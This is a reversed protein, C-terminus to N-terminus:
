NEMYFGSAFLIEHLRMSHYLEFMDMESPIARESQSFLALSESKVYVFVEILLKVSLKISLFCLSM